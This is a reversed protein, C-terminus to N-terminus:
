QRPVDREGGPGSLYVAQGGFNGALRALNLNAGNARLDATELDSPLTDNPQQLRQFASLRGALEAPVATAVNAAGPGFARAPTSGDSLAGSATTIIAGVCLGVACVYAFWVALRRGHPSQNVSRPLKM